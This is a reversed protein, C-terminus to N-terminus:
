WLFNAPHSNSEIEDEETKQRQSVMGSMNNLCGSMKSLSMKVTYENIDDNSSSHISAYVVCVNVMRHWPEGCRHPINRTRTRASSIAYM